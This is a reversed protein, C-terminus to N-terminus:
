GLSSRQAEVQELWYDMGMDAFMGAALTFHTRAQESAGAQRSLLGLTLHGRAVLLRAGLDDALSMAQQTAIRAAELDPRGGAAHSAALALFVEAESARQRHPRTAQLARDITTMAHAVRGARRHADALWALSLTHAARFPISEAYVESDERM